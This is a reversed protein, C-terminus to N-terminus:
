SKSLNVLVVTLALYIAVYIVPMLTLIAKRLTRNNLANLKLMLKKSGIWFTGGIIVALLADTMSPLLVSLGSLGRDLMPGLNHGFSIFAVLILPYLLRKSFVSLLIVFFMMGINEIGGGLAFAAGLGLAVANNIKEM